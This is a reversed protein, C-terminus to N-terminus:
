AAYPGRRKEVTGNETAGVIFTSQPREYFELATYAGKCNGGPLVYFTDVKAYNSGSVAWKYLVVYWEGATFEVTGYGPGISDLCQLMQDIGFYNEVTPDQLPIKKNKIVANNDKDYISITPAATPTAALGKDSSRTTLSLYLFQGVQRRGRFM